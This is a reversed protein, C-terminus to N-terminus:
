EAKKNLANVAGAFSTFDIQDPYMRTPQLGRLIICHNKKNRDTRGGPGNMSRRAEKLLNEVDRVSLVLYM